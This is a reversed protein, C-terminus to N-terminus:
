SRMRAPPRAQEAAQHMERGLPSLKVFIPVDVVAKAARIAAVM